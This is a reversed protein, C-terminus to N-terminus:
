HSSILCTQPFITQTSPLTKAVAPLDAKCEAKVIVQLAASPLLLQTKDPSLPREYIVNAYKRSKQGGGGRM